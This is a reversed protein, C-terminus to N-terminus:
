TGSQLVTRNAHLWFEVPENKEEAHCYGAERGHALNGVAIKGIAGVAPAIEKGRAVVKRGIVPNPINVNIAGPRQSNSNIIDGKRRTLDFGAEVGSGFEM